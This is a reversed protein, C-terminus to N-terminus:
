PDKTNKQILRGPGFSKTVVKDQEDFCVYILGEDGYWWKHTPRWDGRLVDISMHVNMFEQDPEGIDFEVKGTQYDGEPGGLIDEVEQITMGRAVREYNEKSIGTKRCQSEEIRRGDDAAEDLWQTSVIGFLEVCCVVGLGLACFLALRLLLRGKRM